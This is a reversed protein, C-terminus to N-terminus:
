CNSYKGTAKGAPNVIEADKRNSDNNTQIKHHPTTKVKKISQSHQSSINPKLTEPQSSQHTHVNHQLKLHTLHNYHVNQNIHHNFQSKLHIHRNFPIHHIIFTYSSYSSHSPMIITTKQIILCNQTLIMHNNNTKPLYLNNTSHTPTKINIQNHYM